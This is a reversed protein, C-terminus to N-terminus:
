RTQKQEAKEAAEEIQKVLKEPRTSQELVQLSPDDQLNAGVKEAINQLLKLVKTNEQETLLNIQLDLHNRRESIRADHNQSILIFTSLFIAELSVVLTLFTFPYPDFKPLGSILNIVIWAIFWILHVWVFTFSGCFQAIADAMRDTKDRNAKATEELEVITHVNQKTLDEVTHPQHYLPSTSKRSPGSDKRKSM